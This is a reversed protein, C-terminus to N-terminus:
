QDLVRLVFIDYINFMSIKIKIWGLVISNEYTGLYIFSPGTFEKDYEFM